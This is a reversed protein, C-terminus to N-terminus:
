TKHYNKKFTIPNQGTVKKFTRNFYSLSEYGSAFCSETVNNGRILHKKAINIRYSNLFETFTLKTMKKFFRCFAERSLGCISAVESLNIKRHYNDDIFKYLAKLKAQERSNYQNQFPQAHLLKRDNDKSLVYFIELVELFQQFSNLNHLQKLRDGVLYKMEDSFVIGCSAEAFLQKMGTMEPCTGISQEMFDARIQLVSKEYEGKIGYDFNLHPIDSGIFVLDSKQFKGIHHGVHRTGNAGDLFVLEFEPHFHWYFFDNLKPNVLIRFSSNLPTNVEEFQINM